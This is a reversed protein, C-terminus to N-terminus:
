RQYGALSQEEREIAEQLNKIRETLGDLTATYSLKEEELEKIRQARKNKLENRRAELQEILTTSEVIRDKLTEVDDSLQNIIGGEQNPVEKQLYDDVSKSASDKTYADNQIQTVQIPTSEVQNKPENVPMAEINTAPAVPKNLAPMDALKGKGFENGLGKVHKTVRTNVRIKRAGTLPKEEFSKEFVSLLFKDAVEGYNNGVKAPAVPEPQSVNPEEKKEEAPVVLTKLFSHYKSKLSKM